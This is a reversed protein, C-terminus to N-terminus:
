FFVISQVNCNLFLVQPNYRCDDMYPLSNHVQPVFKHVSNDSNFILSKIFPLIILLFQKHIAFLSKEHAFSVFLLAFWHKISLVESSHLTNPVGPQFRVLPVQSRLSTSQGSLQPRMIYPQYFFMRVMDLTKSQSLSLESEILCLRYGYHFPQINIYFKFQFMKM